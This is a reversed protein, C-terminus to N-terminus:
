IILNICNVELTGYIKATTNITNSISGVTIGTFKTNDKSSNIIFQNGNFTFNDSITLPQNINVATSNVYLPSSTSSTNSGAYLNSIVGNNTTLTNTINLSESIINSNTFDLVLKNDSNHLKNSIITNATINLKDNITTTKNLETEYNSTLKGSTTNGISTNHITNLPKSLTIGSGTSSISIALGGAIDKLETSQIKASKLYYNPNILFYDNGQPISAIENGARRFSLGLNAGVNIYANGKGSESKEDTFIYMNAETNDASLTFKHTTNIDSIYGKVERVKIPEMLIPSISTTQLGETNAISLYNRNGEIHLPQGDTFFKESKDSASATIINAETGRAIHIKRKNEWTM